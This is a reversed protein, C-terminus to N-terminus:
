RTTPTATSRATPTTTPDDTPRQTRQRRPRRIIPSATSRRKRSESPRRREAARRGRSGHVGGGGDVLGTCAVARTNAAARLPRLVRVADQRCGTWTRTLGTSACCRRPRRGRSGRWTWSVRARWRWEAAAGRPDHVGSSRARRPAAARGCPERTGRRAPPVGAHRGTGGARSGTSECCSRAAATGNNQYVGAM